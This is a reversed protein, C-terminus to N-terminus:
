FPKMRDMAGHKRIALFCAPLQAPKTQRRASIITLAMIMRTIKVVMMTLAVLGLGAQAAALTIEITEVDQSFKQCGTLPGSIFLAM